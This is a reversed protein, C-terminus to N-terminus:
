FAPTNHSKRSTSGHWGVARCHKARRIAWTRVRPSTLKRELHSGLTENRRGKLRFRCGSITLPGAPLRIEAGVERLFDMGLIGAVSIQLPCVIFIM